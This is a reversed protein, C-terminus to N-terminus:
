PRVTVYKDAFSFQLQRLDISPDSHVGSYIAYERELMKITIRLDAIQQGIRMAKRSREDNIYVPRTVPAPQNSKARPKAAGAASGGKNPGLPINFLGM